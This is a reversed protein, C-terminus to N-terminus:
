SIYVSSIVNDWGAVMTPSQAFAWTGGPYVSGGGSSGSYFTSDCAGVRYSSTVNDFGYNALNLYIGQTAVALVTGGYSSSSYLRLNSSCTALLSASRNNSDIAGHARDLEKESRYCSVGSEDVYCANAKGWGESLDIVEGEFSAHSADDDAAGASPAGFPAAIMAAAALGAAAATHRFRNKLRQGRQRDTSVTAVSTAQTTSRGGDPLDGQAGIRAGGGENEAGGRETM